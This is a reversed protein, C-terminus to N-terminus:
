GNYDGNVSPLTAKQTKKEEHPRYNSSSEILPNDLASSLPQTPNLNFVTEPPLAEKWKCLTEYACWLTSDMSLAKEIKQVAAKRNGTKDLIRGLM